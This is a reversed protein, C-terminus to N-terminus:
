VVHLVVLYIIYYVCDPRVSPLGRAVEQSLSFSLSTLNNYHSCM